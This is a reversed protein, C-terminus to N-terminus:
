QNIKYNIKYYSIYIGFESSSFITSITINEGQQTKIEYKYNNIGKFDLEGEPDQSYFAREM